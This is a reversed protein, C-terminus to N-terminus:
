RWLVVLWTAGPYYWSEAPPLIEVRMAHDAALTALDERARESLDYPQATYCAPRKYGKGHGVVPIWVEGHDDWHNRLEDDRDARDSMRRGYQRGMFTHWDNRRPSLKLGHKEAWAARLASDTKSCTAM